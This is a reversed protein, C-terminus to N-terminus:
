KTRLRITALYEPDLEAGRSRDVVRTATVPVMLWPQVPSLLPSFVPVFGQDVLSVAFDVAVNGRLDVAGTGHWPLLASGGLYSFGPSGPVSAGVKLRIGDTLRDYDLVRDAEAACLYQITGLWATTLVQRRGALVAATAAPDTLNYLERYVERSWALRDHGAPLDVGVSHVISMFLEDFWPGPGAPARHRAEALTTLPDRTVDLGRFAETLAAHRRAILDARRTRVGAGFRETAADDIDRATVVGDLGVLRLYEALKRQYAAAAATPRPRFHQGDTLLQIRLGPPYVGQVARHLERLRVLGALEALDPLLGFAKLGSQAQKIPFGLLTVPIPAGDRV